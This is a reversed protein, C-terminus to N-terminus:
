LAGLAGTPSKWPFHTCTPWPCMTLRAPLQGDALCFYMRRPLFSKFLASLGFEVRGQGSRPTSAAWAVETGLHECQRAHPDSEKTQESEVQKETIPDLCVYQKAVQHKKGGCTKTNWPTM